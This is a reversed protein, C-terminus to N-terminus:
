MRGVTQTKGNMTMWNGLKTDLELVEGVTHAHAKSITQCQRGALRPQLIWATCIERPNRPEPMPALKKLWRLRGSNPPNHLRKGDNIRQKEQQPDTERQCRVNHYEGRGKPMQPPNLDRNTSNLTTGLCKLNECFGFFQHEDNLMTDETDSPTPQLGYGPSLVAEIQREPKSSRNFCRNAWGM